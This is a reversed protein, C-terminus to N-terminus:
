RTVKAKKQHYVGFVDQPINEGEELMERVFKDMTQWPVTAKDSVDYQRLLEALEEGQEDDQALVTLQRKILANHGHERLWAMAEAQNKATISTRLKKDLKIKLGDQTKFEELGLSEMAGPLRHEQVDSLVRKAEALAQEADAVAIEAAVQEEAMKELDQMTAM